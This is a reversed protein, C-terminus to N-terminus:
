VITFRRLLTLRDYRTVGATYVAYVSSAAEECTVSWRYGRWGRSSSHRRYPLSYFDYSSLSLDLRRFRLAYLARRKEVTRATISCRAEIDWYGPNNLPAPARPRADGMPTCRPATEVQRNGRTDRFMNM